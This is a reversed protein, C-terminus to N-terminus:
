PLKTHFRKMVNERRYVPHGLFPVFKTRALKMSHQGIKLCVESDSFIRGRRLHTLAVISFSVVEQLLVNYSHATWCCPPCM